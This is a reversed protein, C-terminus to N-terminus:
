EEKERKKGMRIGLEDLVFTFLLLFIVYANSQDLVNFLSRSLFFRAWVILVLLEVSRLKKMVSCHFLKVSLNHRLQKKKEKSSSEQIHM